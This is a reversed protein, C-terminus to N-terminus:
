EWRGVELCVRVAHVLADHQSVQRCQVESMQGILRYLLSLEEATFRISRPTPAPM